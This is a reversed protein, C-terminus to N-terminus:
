ENGKRSREQRVKQAQVKHSSRPFFIGINTLRCSLGLHLVHICVTTLISPPSPPPPSPPMVRHFVEFMRSPVSNSPPLRQKKIKSVPHPAERGSVRSRIHKDYQESYHRHVSLVISLYIFLFYVVNCKLVDRKRVPVSTFVFLLLM